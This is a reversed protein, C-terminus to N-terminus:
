KAGMCGLRIDLLYSLYDLPLKPARL